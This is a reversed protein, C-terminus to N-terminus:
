EARSKLRDVLLTDVVLQVIHYAVMPLVALGSFLLAVDLGIMLTKQSGAIAVPLQDAYKLGLARSGFWGLAFLMLHMVLVLLVLWWWIYSPVSSSDVSALTEGASVAGFLVMSLVGVQAALSLQTKSSAAFELVTTSRRLVQAVIVPVVVLLLLRQSLDWADLKVKQGLMVWLWGPLVLFCALNTVLTVFLAIADNGGGRRTWVAASALTCPVCAAILLGVSLDTPLLHGIGWALPPAVLISLVLALGVARVNRAAATLQGFSMPLATIFMVIAVVVERPFQSLPGHLHSSLTMGTLLVALLLVLFWHRQLIKNM